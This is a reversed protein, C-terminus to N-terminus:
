IRQSLIRFFILSLIQSMKAIVKKRENKSNERSRNLPSYIVFGKMYTSCAMKIYNM